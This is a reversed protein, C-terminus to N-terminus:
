AENTSIPAGSPSLRVIKRPQPHGYPWRAALLRRKAIRTITVANSQNGGLVHYHTDDEGWYLAVHGRWGDRSGRWFVMVAGLQPGVEMGFSQWNRALLPNDPINIEPDWARFCTAIFAGCWPVDRPDLWSVGNAFWRRLRATDRREHLGMVERSIDLWPLDAEPMAPQKFLAEKTLPGFYPRARFGISRKFATIAADTRPGRIGDIPGPNFGLSQLRKQVRRWDTM